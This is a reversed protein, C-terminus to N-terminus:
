GGKLWYNELKENFLRPVAHTKNNLAWVFLAYSDANDLCAVSDMVEPALYDSYDDKWYGGCNKGDDAHVYKHTAEHILVRELCTKIRFAEYGIEIHGYTDKLYRTSVKVLGLYHSRGSVHNQERKKNMVKIVQSREMGTRITNLKEKVKIVINKFNFSNSSNKNAVYFPKDRFVFWYAKAVHTAKRFNDETLQGIAHDLWDCSRAMAIMIQHEIDNGGKDKVFRQMRVTLTVGNVHMKKATEKSDESKQVKVKTSSYVRM